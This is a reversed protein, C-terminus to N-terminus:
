SPRTERHSRADALCLDRLKGGCVDCDCVRFEVDPNEDTVGCIACRKRVPAPEAAVHKWRNMERARGAQRAGRRTLAVLDRHFFLLYNAIGLLPMLKQWGDAMGVMYLIVGADLFALWKVPVPLVFFLRIVYDPYLTAFALFLSMILPGNSVPAYTLAGVAISGVIGVLWYLQYRFAGWEAELTVGMTYLWFVAFIFWLPSTSVPMALWTVARWWQGAAILDIDFLMRAEVAPKSLVLVFGGVQLAILIYTLNGLAYRGFRREIRDLLRPM